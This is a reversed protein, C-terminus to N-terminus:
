LIIGSAVLIMLGLDLVNMSALKFWDSIISGEHLHENWDSHRREVSLVKGSSGDLQVEWYGELFLFKVIGKDPRAEIRDVPNSAINEASDLAAKAIHAMESLAIWQSLDTTIGKQTPPQLLNADKKWSLIAGTTASILLLVSLALGLYHHYLRYQRLTHALSRIKNKQKQTISM